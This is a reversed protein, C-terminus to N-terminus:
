LSYLAAKYCPTVTLYFLRNPFTTKGCRKCLRSSVPATTDQSSEYGLLLHCSPLLSTGVTHTVSPWQACLHDTFSRGRSGLDVSDWPHAQNTQIPSVFMSITKMNWTSLSKYFIDKPVVMTCFHCLWDAQETDKICINYAHWMIFRYIYLFFGRKTNTNLALSTTEEDLHLFYQQPYFVM